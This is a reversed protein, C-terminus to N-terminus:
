DRCVIKGKGIIGNRDTINYFYIGGPLDQTNLTVTGSFSAQMMARSTADFIVIEAPGGMVYTVTLRDSFPNPYVSIGPSERGAIGVSNVEVADSMMTCGFMDTIEVSYVGNEVATYPNSTAGPILTGGLYWQFTGSGSSFLQAGNRTIHPVNSQDTYKRFLFGAASGAAIWHNPAVELLNSLHHTGTNDNLDFVMLGETGFGTNVTGDEKLMVGCGIGFGTNLGGMVMIQGDSFVTIGTATMGSFTMSSRGSTGFGPDVTGDDGIRMVEISNAATGNAMMLIKGDTQLATGFYNNYIALPTADTFVGGTGFTPDIEGTSDFAVAFFHDIFSADWVSGIGVIRGDTLLHGYAKAFPTFSAASYVLKGDGSFTPDLTGDPMFRMIGIGNVGGNANGSCTGICVIRLDPMLYVSNFSGSSVDDFRLSNFGTGNFTLDPTGDANFRCICPIQQSGANSPAQQGGCLVKGDPQLLYAYGMTRQDFKTRVIGDTGFTADIQGCNDFRMMDIHFDNQSIDYDYGGYIIKQDTQYLFSSGSPSGATTVQLGSVTGFLTDPIMDQAFIGPSANWFLLVGCLILTKM